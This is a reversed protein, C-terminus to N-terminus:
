KGYGMTNMWSTGDDGKDLYHFLFVASQPSAMAVGTPFEVKCKNFALETPRIMFIDNTFSPLPTLTTDNNNVRRMSALAVKSYFDGSEQFKNFFSKNPVASTYLTLFALPFITTDLVPIGPNNPDSTIDIGCYAEIAVVKRDQLEQVTPFIASAPSSGATPTVLVSVM